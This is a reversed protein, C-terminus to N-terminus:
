VRKGVGMEKRQWAERRRMLYIYYIEKLSYQKIEHLRLFALILKLRLGSSLGKKGIVLNMYRRSSETWHFKYPENGRLFDFERLGKEIAYKILFMQHLHGVNYKAYDIDRASTTCYFKHNYVFAYEASAIEGDVVLCSFHLWGKKVFQTAIDRYFAEMKPESFVGKVHASQWRREHLDIFRSLMIGLSDGTYQRFEVSHAKELSRLKRRLMHRRNQSLSCFYEDWTSPLAIYPALTKVKEQMILNNSSVSICRRLLNLFDCDDPVWAVRLVSEGEALEEGLYSLFASVAEEGHGSSIVGMHNCNLSGITELVRIKFLGIRYETRMLPVIGITQGEKEILVVNLKRREGFHKWWTSLWEHTLYVPNGDGSKRLLSDWVESLSEFENSESIIRIKTNNM